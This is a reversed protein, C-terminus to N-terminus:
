KLMGWTIAATTVVQFIIQTVDRIDRLSNDVALREPVMVTDGPELVASMVGRRWPGWGTYFNKDTLVSGDAKVVYIGQADATETVGGTKSLYSSVRKGPEYTIATPNYVQGLVSVSNIMPPVMLVDGDELQVDTNSHPKRALDSLSVIMRGSAKTEKFSQLLERQSSIALQNASVAEASLAGAAAQASQRHLNAELRAVFDQLRETQQRKVSERTFIAGKLYSRTTFGGARSLIDFLTEGDSFSYAGPQAVEGLLTITRHRKFSPIPKVLVYDNKELILNADAEGRMVKTLDITMRRTEVQNNAISLRTLEASSRDAQDQLGGALRLLESVKMKPHLRYEGARQVAGAIRVTPLEEIDWRYYVRIKDEPALPKNEAADGALAKGLHFPILEMHFDPPHVREIMGFEMYSEPKLDRETRIVDRLRLNPRFEYKGPREVHGELTVANLLKQNVPFIKILDGDKLGLTAGKASEVDVDFVKRARNEDFREIQVRQTFGMPSVNGAIALLEKLSTVGKLEYIAPTKVHGAVGVRAGVPPVFIIDGSQLRRDASSDGRRLLDYYDFTAIVKGDRKLQINRLSGEKSPGGSAMVANSLSSLASITYAAPKKVNGVVFIRITRLKGMRVSMNMDRAGGRIRQELFSVLQPYTMGSVSLAGIGPYVITGQRSIAFTHEGSRRPSVVSIVLEDGPGVRYDEPVPMDEVPAFTSPSEAFLEYGYQRLRTSIGEPPREAFMREISSTDGELPPEPANAEASAPPRVEDMRQELIRRQDPTLKELAEPSVRVSSSVPLVPQTLTFVEAAFAQPQTLLGLSLMAVLFPKNM